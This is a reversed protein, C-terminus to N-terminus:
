FGGGIPTPPIPTPPIPTPLSRGRYGACNITVNTLGTTIADVIPQQQARTLSENLISWAQDCEGLFYHALGRIYYCEIEESGLDLCTNFSEIAGEYNRRSYRLQGRMRHASAYQPDIDLADDCYVEADRFLGVAAYTECLRLYARENAPEIELVRNYISVAMEPQNIRRYLSALEFYPAALNPNIAIAQELQDIAETYRATFILPYSFSRRASADGPDIRIALDGRQIAEQYRGINTYAVALAANLPAFPVGLETGTIAIPIASAPDSWVMSNAKLAYGRPDQSALQILRDGLQEAEANRDVEILVKGYEYLYDLNEPQQTVAMGYLRAAEEVAGRNYASQAQMARDAAFPTATPAFGIAGLTQLQILDYQWYTFLPILLILALMFGIFILRGSSRRRKNFFAQNYNRNIRDPRRYFM